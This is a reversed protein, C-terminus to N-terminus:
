QTAGSKWRGPSIMGMGCIVAQSLCFMVLWFSASDTFGYSHLGVGLQNVGFWSWATVVNGFVAMVALGRHKVMGGYKAHLMISNWIVILLAGNEKPDWGWFRGWSDDAWLGGLVTGVFSLLLAFCTTGYLMRFMGDETEADLRRTFLGSIIYFVGITGAVFTAMYGLTVTIVHTALWFRTDLVARMQEMTDGDGALFYAILLTSFGAIGGVLNGIGGAKKRFGLELLIGAAVAGWGIFIASSYLNTVPPYGSLFVRAIIAFTHPIFAVILLTRAASLLGEKRFLWGFCSLVFVLLYLQASKMFANFRNYFVEFSIKEFAAPNEEQITAGFEMLQQNFVDVSGERYAALMVGMHIALPDVTLEHDHAMGSMAPHATLLSSMLPRWRGNEASPPIILPISYNELQMYRQAAAMLQEGPIGSPDEFSGLVNQFMYLKNALKIVQRDYLDRDRDEKSFASRSAADLKGLGPLIERYSYRFRKTEELGLSTLVDLNEIRIVKYDMAKPTGAINDLLWQTAEIKEGDANRVSQKGSLITLLNRAMTDVPKKRGEYKVPLHAFANIQFEDATEKPPKVGSQYFWLAFLVVLSNSIIRKM